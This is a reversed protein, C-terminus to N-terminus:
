GRGGLNQSWRLYRQWDEPTDVDWITPLLQVELDAAAAHALTQQLVVDSGWPIDAFLSEEPQKLAILGYGGDEAPGLVVDAQDLGAFAAEVYAADIEPCDTGIVCARAAGEELLVQLIGHMRAGLDGAPQTRLPWECSAAWGQVIADTETVWLSAAARDVGALRQLTGEVLRTHAALAGEAGLEGQLRTKTAHLKPTRAMVALHCNTQTM